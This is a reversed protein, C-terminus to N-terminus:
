TPLEDGTSQCIRAVDNRLEPMAAVIDKALTDRLLRYAEARGKLQQNGRQALEVFERTFVDPNRSSEVYLIIDPPIDISVSPASQKLTVLNEVL